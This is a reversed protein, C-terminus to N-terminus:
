APVSGSQLLTALRKLHTKEEAIIRDLADTNGGAIDRLEHFFLLTEKEFGIAMWIAERENKASDAEALAKDEGEFFASQVTADLYALYLQWEQDSMMPQDWTDAGLKQFTQYHFVEQQALEEFLSRIDPNETKAAVARYYSEGNKEIQLALEIIDAARFVAM